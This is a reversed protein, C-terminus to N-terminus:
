KVKDHLYCLSKLGILGDLVAMFDLLATEKKKEKWSGLIVVACNIEKLM